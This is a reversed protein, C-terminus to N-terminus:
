TKEVISPSTLQAAVSDMTKGLYQEENFAPIILSIGPITQASSNGIHAQAILAYNVGMGAILM